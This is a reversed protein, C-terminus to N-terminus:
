RMLGEVGRCTLEALLAAAEEAPVKRGGMAWQRFFNLATSRIFSCVLEEKEEGLWSFPNGVSRYRSMQIRYLREGFDFYGRGCVLQETLKPRGALYMFFRVAHGSIDEPVDPTEEFGEFFDDMIDNLTEEYLSEITEYHLYFTKRNIGARDALAKVTIKGVDGECAMEEFADKIAKRTRLARPDASASDAM